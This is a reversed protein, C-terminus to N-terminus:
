IMRPLLVSLVVAALVFFYAAVVAAQLSHLVLQRQGFGHHQYEEYTILYAMAGAIPSLVLGILIVGIVNAL